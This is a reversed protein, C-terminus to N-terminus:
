LSRRKRLYSMGFLGALVAAFLPMSAPLPVSSVNYTVSVLHGTSSFLASFLSQIQALSGSTNTITTSGTSTGVNASAFTLPASSVGNTSGVSTTSGNSYASSSGIYTLGGSTYNYSGYSHMSAAVLNSFTYTFTVSSNTPLFGFDNGNEFSYPGVSTSTYNNAITGSQGVALTGMDVNAGSFNVVSAQATGAALLFVAAILFKKTKM